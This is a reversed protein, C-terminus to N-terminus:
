WSSSVGYLAIAANVAERGTHQHGNIAKLSSKKGDAVGYPLVRFKPRKSGDSIEVPSEPLAM